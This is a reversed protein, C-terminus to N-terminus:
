RKGARRRSVARWLDRIELDIEDADLQYAGVINKLERAFMRNATVLLNFAQNRSRIGFEEILEDYAKPEISTLTPLLVRGRFVGWVDRRRNKRCEARMRRIAQGLVQRAWARDFASSPDSGNDALNAVEDLHSTRSNRGNARTQDRLYNLVFRDLATALFTRFKGRAQDARRLIDNELVKSVIFAQLVDDIEHRKVKGRILLHHKLAPM